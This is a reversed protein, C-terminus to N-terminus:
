FGWSLKLWTGEDTLDVYFDNTTSREDSVDTPKLFADDIFNALFNGLAAGFLIGSPYHHHAAVRAWASTAAVATLNIRLARRMGPSLMVADLHRKARTACNFAQSTHSSPISRPNGNPWARGTEDKLFGVM